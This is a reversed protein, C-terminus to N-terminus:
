NVSGIQLNWTSTGDFVFIVEQTADFEVSTDSGLDTSIIDTPGTTNIFVTVGNPKTVIVSTGAPKGSGTGHPLTVTGAATVFYRLSFGLATGPPVPIYDAGATSNITVSKALANTTINVNTGPLITLTDAGVANISPQTPVAITSFENSSSPAPTFILGTEGPNVTVVYGAAGAYTHPVDTLELFTTAGGGGQGWIYPVQTVVCVSCDVHDQGVDSGLSQVMATLTADNWTSRDAELAFSLNYQNPNMIDVYASGEIRNFIIEAASFPVPQGFANIAGSFDAGNIVYHALSGTIMQDNFVGGNTRVVM